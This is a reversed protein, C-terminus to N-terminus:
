PERTAGPQQRIIAELWRVAPELCREDIDFAATHHAARNAGGVMVYTALGGRDQVARAFLTADDSAPMPATRRVHDPGFLGLAVAVVEDVLADDSELTTAAGLVEFVATAGWLDAAAQVVRRARALLDDAVAGSDSRVEGSLVAAAPVINAAGDARLTGVNVNTNGASSRPLALLHLVASAAAALANRGDQPAQAAHAALGTFHVRFKTTAQVGVGTGVVTGMPLGHGLHLALFRDVDALVGASIMAAAGRCGEEAPQFLLRVRGRFATGALQKALAIGIATHGDHGCAHMASTVSRFGEAYPAHSPDESEVIPLADMDFRLAWLPGPQGGDIDVVVATGDEALRRTREPDAGAAVAAEAAVQRVDPGPADVVAGLDLVDYGTRVDVPLHEIEELVRAATRVELFPLEPFRHFERRLDILEGRRASSEKRM